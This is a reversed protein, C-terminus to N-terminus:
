AWIWESGASLTSGPMAQWIWQCPQADRGASRFRQAREVDPAVNRKIVFARAKLHLQDLARQFQRAPMLALRSLQQPHIVRREIALNLDVIHTYM